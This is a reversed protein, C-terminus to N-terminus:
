NFGVNSDLICPVQRCLTKDLMLVFPAGQHAKEPCAYHQHPGWYFHAPYGQNPAIILYLTM